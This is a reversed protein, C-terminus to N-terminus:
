KKLFQLTTNLKTKNDIINLFYVSSPVVNLDIENRGPLINRVLTLVKSGNLNNIEIFLNKSNESSNIIVLSNDIINSELSLYNNNSINSTAVNEAKYSVSTPVGSTDTSVSAIYGKSQNSLYVYQTNAGANLLRGFVPGALATADIWGVFPLKAEVTITNTTIRKQRLVDYSKAVLKVVGWADVEVKVDQKIKIRLSDVSIGMTLSDPILNGAVQITQNVSYDYQDTYDLPTRLIVAPKDFINPGGFFPNNQTFTGLLELNKNTVRFFSNSAQNSTALNATPFSSAGALGTVDKYSDQTSRNSKLSSFDWYKNAGASGLVIGTSVTDTYYNYVDGVAPLIASNVTIQAKIFLSIFFFALIYFIRNM